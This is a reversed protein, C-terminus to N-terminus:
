DLDVNYKNYAGQTGNASLVKSNLSVVPFLSRSGSYSNTLSSFMNNTGLLSSYAIFVYFYCCNRNLGVCRSAVWYNKKLLNEKATSGWNISYYTQYPQISTGAQKYGKQIANSETKTIFETQESQGLNTTKGQEIEPEPTIVHSTEREYITPYYSYSKSYPNTDQKQATVNQKATNLAKVRSDGGAKIANEIDDINISRATIGSNEPGSYLSTCADNLLKVANNYGQAGRLQVTASPLSDPVMDVAGTKNDVNLVRWKTIKYTGSEGSTLTDISEEDTTGTFESDALRKDWGYSGNPTYEIYDGVQLTLAPKVKVIVEAQEGTQTGTITITSTGVGVKNIQANGNVTEVTAVGTNSSTYTVGESGSQISLMPIDQSTDGMQLTITRGNSLTTTENGKTYTITALSLPRSLVETGRATITMTATLGNDQKDREDYATKEADTGTTLEYPWNWTITEIHKGNENGNTGKAQLYRSFSFTRTLENSAGGESLITTVNNEDIRSFIINRPCNSLAITVDYVVDTETGTTNVIVQFEGNTGPAITGTKVHTFDITEALDIPGTTEEAEGNKPGNKLKLDFSWKAIEAIANGSQSSIYRAWAFLGMSSSIMIIAILFIAALHLSVNSNQKKAQKEKM